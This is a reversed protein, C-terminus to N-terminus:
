TGIAVKWINERSLEAAYALAAHIDEETLQPYHDIIQDPRLGEAMGDLIVAIPIRTKQICPQGGCIQPHTTIRNLINQTM